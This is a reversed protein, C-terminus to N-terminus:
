SAEVTIQYTGIKVNVFQYDGNTDTTATSGITTATNRLTVTAGKIVASNADHVTGLVTATESQASVAAIGFVIIVLACIINISRKLLRTTSNMTEELSTDHIVRILPM